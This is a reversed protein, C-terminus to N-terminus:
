VGAACVHGCWLGRARNSNLVSIHGLVQLVRKFVVRVREVRWLGKVLKM